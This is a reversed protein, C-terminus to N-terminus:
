GLLATSYASAILPVFASAANFIEIDTATPGNTQITTITPSSLISWLARQSEREPNALAYNAWNKRRAATPANAIASGLVMTAASMTAVGARAKFQPDNGVAWLDLLATVAM